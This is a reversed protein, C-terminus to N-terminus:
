LAGGSIFIEIDLRAYGSERAALTVTQSHSVVM